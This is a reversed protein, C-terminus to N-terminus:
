VFEKVGEGAREAREARSNKSVREPCGRGECSNKSVRERVGEGRVRIRQCGRAREAREPQQPTPEDTAPLEDSASEGSDPPQDGTDPPQDGTDPPQNGPALCGAAILGASLSMLLLKRFIPMIM